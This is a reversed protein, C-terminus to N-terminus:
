RLEPPDRGADKLHTALHRYVGKRDGAPIDTGGRGGNLVAIGSSCARESAAGVDGNRAVEHHIFKYAAKTDGDAEPDVWAYAGRM